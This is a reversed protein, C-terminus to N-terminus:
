LAPDLQPNYEGKISSSPEILNVLLLPFGPCPGTPM